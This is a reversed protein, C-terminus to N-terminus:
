LTGLDYSVVILNALGKLNVGTTIKAGILYSAALPVGIPKSILTFSTLLAPNVIAYEARESYLMNPNSIDQPAIESGFM